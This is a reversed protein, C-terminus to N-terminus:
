NNWVSEIGEVLNGSAAVDNERIRGEAEKM